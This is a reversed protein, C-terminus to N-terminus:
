GQPHYEDTVAFSPLRVDVRTYWDVYQVRKGSRLFRACHLLKAEAMSRDRTVHCNAGARVRSKHVFSAQGSGSSPPPM